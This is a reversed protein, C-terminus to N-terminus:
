VVRRGKLERNVGAKISVGFLAFLLTNIATLQETTLTTVGFVQLLNVTAGIVILIYSKKGQLYEIVKQM